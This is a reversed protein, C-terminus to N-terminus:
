ENSDRREKKYNIENKLLRSETINQRESSLKNLKEGLTYEVHLISDKSVSTMVKMENRVQELKEETQFKKKYFSVGLVILGVISPAILYFLQILKPTIIKIKVQNSREQHKSLFYYDIQARNLITESQRKAKLNYSFSSEEGPSICEIRNVLKGESLSFDEHSFGISDKLDINKIGINGTNRVTIIVEVEQGIQVQNRDVHKLISFNVDGLVLPNSNSIQITESESGKIFNISPYLYSKWDTKNLDISFSKTEGNKLNNVRLNKEDIRVLGGYQDGMQVSLDPIILDNPSTNNINVTLTFTEGIQPSNTTSVYNFDIVRVFPKRNEYDVPTCLYINNSFSKLMKSTGKELPEPNEYNIQAGEIMESNPTFFSFSIIREEGAELKELSYTLNNNTIDFDGRNSIIGPIKISVKINRAVNSGINKFNLSYTNIEGPNTNYHSLSSTAIISSMNYTSLLINNSKSEYQVTGSKSGYRVKSAPIEEKNIDRESFEVFIENISINFKQENQARIKVLLTLNNTQTDYLHTLNNAIDTILFTRTNNVTSTLYDSIDVYQESTFNFIQFNLLDIDTITSFNAILNISELTNNELDVFTKNEFLFNLYIKENEITEESEIIWNLSDNTSAMSPTTDKIINGFIIEPLKPDNKITFNLRNFSTYSDQDEISTNNLELTLKEQPLIKWNEENWVSYTNTFFDKLLAPTIGTSILDAILQPNRAAVQDIVYDSDENYPSLNTINTPDPYYDLTSGDGNIDFYFIMPDEDLNFFDDLSEYEGPYEIQIVDWMSDLLQDTLDGLNGPLQSVIDQLELPIHTPIGWATENGLNEANIIYDFERRIGYSANDGILRKTLRLNPESHSINYKITFEEIPNLLGTPIFPFGEFGLLQLFNIVDTEEYNNVPKVNSRKLGKENVWFPEFTYNKLSQVDFDTDTLFAALGLQEILFDDLEFEQPTTDIIDTGLINIDIESMFAGMLAIFIKESPGLSEGEYGLANWLNFQYQNKDIKKVGQSLGEYQVDLSIYHSDNKLSFEGTGESLGEIDGESIDDETTNGALDMFATYEEFSQNLNSFMNAIEMTNSFSLDLANFNYNIQDTSMNIDEELFDLSNVLMFTSSLHYNELYEKSRLRDIDLAKWYGDMPLNSTLEELYNTWNPYYGIFPFANPESDNVMILDIEFKRKIIELARESRLEAERPSLDKDYYLIGNLSNYGLGFNNEYISDSMIRPFIEPNISNSTSILLNCKYFAPDNIDFNSLINTDNTFISQRILSNSGAVYVSIQEAYLDTGAIDSNHLIKEDDRFPAKEQNFEIDKGDFKIFFFGLSSILILFLIIISITRIKILRM